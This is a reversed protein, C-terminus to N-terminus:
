TFLVGSISIFFALTLAVILWASSFSIAFPRARAVAVPAPQQYPQGPYGPQGPQGPYGPQGLQAPYGPQGFQEPQGFMNLPMGTVFAMSTPKGTRRQERFARYGLVGAVLALVLLLLYLGVQVLTSPTTYLLTMAFANNIMHLLMSWKMSFRLTCYALVLGVFFAFIGQFLVLHYVGFLLSSLVIAFNNGYPQLSRLVAGRFIIEEFIPGLIVVYLIGPINLYSVFVDITPEEPPINLTQLLSDLLMPVLSVVANFGLIVCMMIILTSVRIRNNTQVIDTTFMRKGRLILLAFSGVIIGIISALGYPFDGQLTDQFLEQAALPNNQLLSLVRELIGSSLLYGGMVVVMAAVNLLYFLFGSLVTMMIVGRLKKKYVTAVNPPPPPPPVHTPQVYIQQYPYPAPQYGVPQPYYNPQYGIPQPYYGPQQQQWPQPAQPQPAQQPWPQPQPAPQAQPAQPQQWPQPQPAPQQQQWPQPQSAQQPQQWPQPTPQSQAQAQWPQAAPQPQAPQPQGQPPWEPGPQYEM